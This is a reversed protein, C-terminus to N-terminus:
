WIQKVLKGLENVDNNNIVFNFKDKDYVISAQERLDFQEATINDRNMAREKRIEYPTDILIKVDCMDFYSTKPLLIWDLIILKNQDRQLMSDIQIQMYHWTINSLKKMKERSSFVLEAIKKRDVTQNNIVEIGFSNILEDQVEKIEMVDHGIKDIEYHVANSKSECILKALTSKGSGSNGCIGIIM